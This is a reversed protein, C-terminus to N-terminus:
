SPHQPSCPRETEGPGPQRLVASLWLRSWLLRVADRRWTTLEPIARRERQDPDWSHDPWEFCSRRDRMLSCHQEVALPSVKTGRVIASCQPTGGGLVWKHTGRPSRACCASVMHARYTLPQVKWTQTDPGAEMGVIRTAALPGPQRVQVVVNRRNPEPVSSGGGM